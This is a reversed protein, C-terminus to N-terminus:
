FHIIISNKMIQVNEFSVIKLISIQEFRSWIKWDFKYWSQFLQLFSKRIKEVPDFKRNSNNIKKGAFDLRPPTTKTLSLIEPAQQPYQGSIHM